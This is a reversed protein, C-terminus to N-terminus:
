GLCPDLTKKIIKSKKEQRGSHVIVYPDSKGNMDAAKLGVGKKLFIKLEGHGLLRNRDVPM